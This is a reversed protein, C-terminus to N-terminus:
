SKNDEAKDRLRFMEIGKVQHTNFLFLVEDCAVVQSFDPHAELPLVHPRETCVKEVVAYGGAVFIIKVHWKM